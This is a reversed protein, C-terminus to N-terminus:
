GLHPQVNTRGPGGPLVFHLGKCNVSSINAVILSRPTPVGSSFVRGFRLRYADTINLPKSSSSKYQKLEVLRPNLGFSGRLYSM